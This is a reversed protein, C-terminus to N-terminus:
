DRHDGNLLDEAAKAIADKDGSEVANKLKEENKKEDSEVKKSKFYKALFAASAEWAKSLLAIIVEIVIARM